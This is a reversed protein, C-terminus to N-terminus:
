EIVRDARLLISPAITLGLAKATRLNVVLEFKTPQEMPLVGPEAGKLIKDVYHAIRRNFENFDVGYAMLGGNEAHLQLGFSTPLRAKLALQPLQQRQAFAISSPAIFLAHADRREIDAFTADLDVIHRIALLEIGVAAAARRMSDAGPGEWFQSPALYAVRSVSPLAEKLLALRKADNEWGTQGTTGTINGGPRALSAALGHEVPTRYNIVVIPASRTAARAAGVLQPDGALVLVDVGARLLESMIAPYREPHGEASRRELILNEGEGYGLARLEHVIARTIPHIPNPGVMEALPSIALVIAVRYRRAPGQAQALRAAFFGLAGAVFHRRGRKM